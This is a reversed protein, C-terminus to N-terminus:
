TLDVVECSDASCALTQMGTTTDEKEYFSLDEWRIEEPMKKLMAEYEEKSCEQYPAQRYIHDSHPLFSVGSIIDFNNYVWGGVEPWEHEKVTVTISPKHECWEDQVRKWYELQDIATMDNRKVSLKPSKIPFFFVSTTEPKIVDPEWPVGAEKLFVTLPDKNDGRVSRIYYDSHRAHLGSASDVLQSVTGSPKVCTIATSANIGIENSLENNIIIAVDRLNKLSIEGKVLDINDMQGTLSVGLLREEETNYKWIKRLYPFYTLTSQYTGLITALRVKNQLTEETDDSRVVVETLNM